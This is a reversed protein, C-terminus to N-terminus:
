SPRRFSGQIYSGYYSSQPLFTQALLPSLRQNDDFISLKTDGLISTPFLTSPLALVLLGGKYSHWVHTNAQSRRDELFLTKCTGHLNHFNLSLIHSISSSALPWSSTLTLSQGLGCIGEVSGLSTPLWFTFSTTWFTKIGLSINTLCVVPLFLVELTLLYTSVRPQIPQM